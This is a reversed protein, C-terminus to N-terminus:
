WPLTSEGARYIAIGELTNARQYQYYLGATMGIGSPVNIRASGHELRVLQNSEPYPLPNLVVRQVVAFITANAGLALALTLVAALTFVPARLLRRAAQWIENGMGAM